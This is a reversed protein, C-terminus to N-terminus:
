KSSTDTGTAKPTNKIMPPNIPKHPTNSKTGISLSTITGNSNPPNKKNKGIENICITMLSLPPASVYLCNKPINLTHPAPTSKKPPSPKYKTNKPM